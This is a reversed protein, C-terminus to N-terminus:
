CATFVAAISNEPSSPPLARGAATEDATIHKLCEIGYDTFATVNEPFVDIVLQIVNTDTV